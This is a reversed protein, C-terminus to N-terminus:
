DEQEDKAILYKKYEWMCYFFANFLFFVFYLIISDLKSLTQDQFAGIMGSAYVLFAIIPHFIWYSKIFNQTASKLKRGFEGIIKFVTM